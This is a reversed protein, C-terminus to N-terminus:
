HENRSVNVIDNADAGWGRRRLEAAVASMSEDGAKEFEWIVKKAERFFESHYRRIHTGYNGSRMEARYEDTYPHKLGTM